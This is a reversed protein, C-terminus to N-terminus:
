RERALYSYKSITYISNKQSQVFNIGALQLMDIYATATFHFSFTFFIKKLVSAGTQIVFGDNKNSLKVMSKM